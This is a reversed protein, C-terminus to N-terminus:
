RMLLVEVRRNKRQNEETDNPAIMKAEGWGKAIVVDPDFGLAIIEKAVILARKNSLEENIMPTGTNDTYGNVHILVTKDLLYPELAAHLTMKDTDSLEVKNINFHITAMMSDNIPEKYDSPLLAINKTYTSGFYKKDITFTDDKAMYGVRGLHMAYSLNAPLPLLYSADGRNSYVHFLSDGSKANTFYISTFNLRDSTISDYIYGYIYQMPSPQLGADLTAAYIDTNGPPGQRDSSFYLTHGDNAVYGGEENYVTNIPYNLHTTTWNSDNIKKAVFIDKGGLSPHGNSTFFLTNGDKCIQPATEDGATNIQPGANIPRSWLGDEYHSVWIDQGGYGGPKSSVFYLTRSDPSLSPQGEYSMTNITAGFLQPITWASDPNIRYATLLDYAGLGWGTASRHDDRGFFLYHGDASIFQGSEHHITNIPYTEADPRLWENCSDKQAHYIDEDVYNVRRTFYITSDNASLTPSTEPFITNLRTGQHLPWQNSSYLIDHKMLLACAKIYNWMASDRSNNGFENYMMLASDPYYCALYSKAVSKSFQKKGNKCALSGAKFTRLADNFRYQEYYWQGLQSYAEPYQPSKKIAAEMRQIAKAKHWDSWNYLAKKYYKRSKKSVQGYSHATILFM